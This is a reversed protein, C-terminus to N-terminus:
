KTEKIQIELKCDSLKEEELFLAYDATVCIVKEREEVQVQQTRVEMLFSGYPTQYHTPHNEGNVFLMVSDFTGRRTLELIGDAVKMRCKVPKEFAEQVEEYFLYHSGDKEGYVAPYVAHTDSRQGDADWQTGRITLEVSKNM